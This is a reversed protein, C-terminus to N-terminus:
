IVPRNVWAVNQGFNSVVNLEHFKEVLSKFTIEVMAKLETLIICICILLKSAM